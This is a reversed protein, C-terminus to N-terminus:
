GTFQPRDAKDLHLIQLFPQRLRQFQGVVLLSAPTGLWFLGPGATNTIHTGMGPLQRVKDAAQQRLRDAGFESRKNSPTLYVVIHPHLHAVGVTGSASQPGTLHSTAM